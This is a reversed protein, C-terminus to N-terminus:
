CVRHPSSLTVFMSEAYHRHPYVSSQMPDSPRSVHSRPATSISCSFDPADPSACNSKLHQSIMTHDKDFSSTTAKHLMVRKMPVSGLIQSVTRAQLISDRKRTRTTPTSLRKHRTNYIRQSSSRACSTSLPLAGYASETLRM